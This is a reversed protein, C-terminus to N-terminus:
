LERVAWRRIARSAVTQAPHVRRAVRRFSKTQGSCRARRATNVNQMANKATQAPQGSRMASSNPISNTSLRISPTEDHRVTGQSPAAQMRSLWPPIEPATTPSGHDHLRRPRITMISSNFIHNNVFQPDRLYNEVQGRLCCSEFSDTPTVYRVVTYSTLQNTSRNTNRNSAQTLCSTTVLTVIIYKTCNPRSSSLVLWIPEDVGPM